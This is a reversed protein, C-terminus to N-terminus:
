GIAGLLQASIAVACHPCALLAVVAERSSHAASDPRVDIVRIRDIAKKCAPCRASQDTM